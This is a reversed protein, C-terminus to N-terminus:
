SYIKENKEKLIVWIQPRNTIFFLKFSFDLFFSYQKKNGYELCSPASSAMM